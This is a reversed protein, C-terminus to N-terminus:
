GYNARTNKQHEESKVLIRALTPTLKDCAVAESTVLLLNVEPNEDLELYM